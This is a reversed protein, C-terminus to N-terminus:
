GLEAVPALRYHSVQWECGRAYGWLEACALVFMRWRWYGARGVLSSVAARHQELNSAWANATQEYHRGSVEWSREVRLDRAFASILDHSPMQGGSFFNRAMWGEAYPYAYRRHSFVHVFMRGGPELWSAVRGLLTEWNRAHEMMEISLVRDFRRKPDFTNADATVVHVNPLGLREIAARQIRSNSVALIRSSPFRESLWGSLSGWGCGLDLLEMGDEVGARECSLSLMAEEAQALTAVGDTWLCCSYKRRPGLMLEFLEAPVEYHQQNAAATEIAVPSRRLEALWAEARASAAAAGGAALLSLRHACAMRVVARAAPDTLREPVV